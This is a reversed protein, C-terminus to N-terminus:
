RWQRDDANDGVGRGKTREPGLLRIASQEREFRTKLARRARCLRVKIATPSIALIKAAALTDFEEIDRLLLVTRYPKPLEDICRRVIHCTERRLIPHEDVWASPETWGVGSVPHDFPHRLDQTLLAARRRLRLQTLAVNVVIRHLWTSLKSGGRFGVISSFAALFAQQVADQADHENGLLKCATALMQAGYRQVLTEFAEKDHAKLQNVLGDGDEPAMTPALSGPKKSLVEPFIKFSENLM